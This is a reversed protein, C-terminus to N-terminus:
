ESESESNLIAEDVAEIFGAPVPIDVISVSDLLSVDYDRSTDASNVNIMTIPGGLWSFVASVDPSEARFMDITGLGDNGPSLSKLLYVAEQTFSCLTIDCVFGLQGEETPDNLVAPTLHEKHIQGTMTEWDLLPDFGDIGIFNKYAFIKAM